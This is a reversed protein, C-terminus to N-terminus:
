CLPRDLDGSQVVVLSGSDVGAGCFCEILDECHSRRAGM